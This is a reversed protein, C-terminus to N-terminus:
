KRLWQPNADNVMDTVDVRPSFSAALMPVQFFCTPLQPDLLFGLAVFSQHLNNEILTPQPIYIFIQSEPLTCSWM